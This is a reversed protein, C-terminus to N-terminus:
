EVRAFPLWLLDDAFRTRIGRGLPPHWWHLVDGEVFQHAAHLLIQRRALEPWLPLLALADQLQDRFGIAGGSQYLASRGWLRCALTQYALWGNVMLDLAPSPTRVRMGDLCNRWSDRTARWAAVCAGPRVLRTVLERARKADEAQGLMVWAEATDSPDLALTAQLAFCPDLGPGVRGDLQGSALAAPAAPDGGPGLFTARDGSTHVANLHDDGVMAGFATSEAFPGATSNQALLAGTAADRSTIVFRSCHRPLDGLVLQSYFFLSLRRPREGHNTVRVRSIRVPERRDVFILTEVALDNGIRRCRSYGHGHRM